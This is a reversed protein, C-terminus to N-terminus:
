DVTAQGMWEHHVYDQIQRTVRAPATFDMDFWRINRWRRFWTYQHRIYRHTETKIHKVAEERTRDGQLYPVLQRYGLASFAPLAADYGAKLLSQVEPILGQAMMNDVRSDVREHLLQRSCTLGISYLPWEPARQGELLAKSQGTKIFVELARIIRRGNRADISKATVPDLTALRAFLVDVGQEALVTELEQRLAPDPAVAPIRLNERIARIYLPTGGVLVPLCGRGRIHRICDQAMAQYEALTLTEDPDCIDYLHHSVATRQQLTPKATGVDMHRYIQRSDANVVELPWQAALRLAIETKGIGTPGLLILVPWTKAEM